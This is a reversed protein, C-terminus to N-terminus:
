VSDIKLAGIEVHNFYWQLVLNSIGKKRISVVAYKQLVSTRWMPGIGIGLCDWYKLTARLCTTSGWFKQLTEFCDGFFEEYDDYADWCHRKKPHGM